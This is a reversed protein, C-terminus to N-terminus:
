RPCTHYPISAANLEEHWPNAPGGHLKVVWKGGKTLESLAAIRAAKGECDLRGYDNGKVVVIEDAGLSSAQCLCELQEATEGYSVKIAVNRGDLTVNWKECFEDDEARTVLVLRADDYFATNNM